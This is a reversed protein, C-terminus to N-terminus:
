PARNGRRQEQGVLERVDRLRDLGQRPRADATARCGSVTTTSSGGTAPPSPAPTRAWGCGPRVPLYGCHDTVRDLYAGGSIYPKTAMAGGDAHQSMGVVNPVMVWIVCDGFM